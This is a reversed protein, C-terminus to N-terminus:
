IQRAAKLQVGITFKTKFISLKPFSVHQRISLCSNIKRVEHLSITFIRLSVKGEIYLTDWLSGYVVSYTKEKDSKHAIANLLFLRTSTIQQTSAATLSFNCFKTPMNRVNQSLQILVSINSIARSKHSLSYFRNRELCIVHVCQGKMCNSHM